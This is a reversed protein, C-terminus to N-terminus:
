ALWPHVEWCASVNASSQSDAPKPSGRMERWSVLRPTRSATSATEPGAAGYGALDVVRVVWTLASPPVRVGLRRIRLRSRSTWPLGSVDSANRQERM